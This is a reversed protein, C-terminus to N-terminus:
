NNRKRKRSGERFNKLFARRKKRLIEEQDYVEEALWALYAHNNKLLGAHRYSNGARDANILGREYITITTSTAHVMGFERAEGPVKPELDFQRLLRDGKYFSAKRLGMLFLHDWGSSRLRPNQCGWWSCHWLISASSKEKLHKIWDQETVCSTRKLSRGRYHEPGYPSMTPPLVLSLHDMLWFQLLLPSGHFLLTEQNSLADLGHFTEALVIPVINKENEAEHVIDAVRADAFGHDGTFLLFESLLCFALAFCKSRSQHLTRVEMPMFKDIMKQVDVWQGDLLPVVEKLPIRMLSSLRNQYKPECSPVAPRADIDCGLIATFEEVTPCLEALHFRFVHDKADWFRSAAMLFGWDLKVRKLVLLGKLGFAQFNIRDTKDMGDVWENLLTLISDSQHWTNSHFSFPVTRAM